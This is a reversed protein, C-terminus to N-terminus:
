PTEVPTTASEATGDDTAGETDGEASGPETEDSGETPTDTEMFADADISEVSADGLDPPTPPPVETGGCGCVFSGLCLTLMTLALSRM